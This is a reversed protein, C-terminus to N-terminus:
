GPPMTPAIPSQPIPAFPPPPPLVPAPQADPNAAAQAATEAKLRAQEAKWRAREAGWMPPPKVLPGKVGCSALPAALAVAGVLLWIRAKM